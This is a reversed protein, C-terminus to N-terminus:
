QCIPWDRGMKLIEGFPVITVNPKYGDIQTEKLQDEMFIIKKLKPCSELLRKFKPLLGHSTIVIEVETENLCHVIGDEGLTAYITVITMAQKFCGHAAVIWESRTEAFVAVKSHPTVGFKRLGRGFATAARNADKYTIWKYEGLRFKEFTKDGDKEDQIELIKRTGM